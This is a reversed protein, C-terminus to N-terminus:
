TNKRKAGRRRQRPLRNYASDDRILCVDFLEECRGAAAIGRSLRSLSDREEGALQALFWRAAQEHRAGAVVAHRFHSVGADIVTSGLALYSREKEARWRRQRLIEGIRDM